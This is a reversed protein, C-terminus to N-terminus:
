VPILLMTNAPITPGSLQNAQLVEQLPVRCAKAIEWAEEEGDTRRLIVAPKRGQEKPLESIEGGCITRLSHNAWCELEAQVPLRLELRDGGSCYIEGWDLSRLSCEAGEHLETELELATHLSRGQLRSEGDYYLVNCHLPLRLRLKDGERERQMEDSCVWADVVSAAEEDCHATVTERFSQNDLKGYMEWQEWRPTLLADTCYADDVLTLRQEGVAMCQALLNASLFLRGCEIQSEPEVEFSAFSLLTQLDAGERDEGFEAYQSFPLEWNHSHLKENRDAYLCHVLMLGKFVAKSGVIKQERVQLRGVCKLLRSVQPEESSLELEENLPFSKECLALPMQIPLEMRRLQLNESPEEPACLRQQQAGYATLCCAIGVRLLLKRSNLPRADVSRLTCKCQLRCEGKEAPLEKRVSFPVTTQLCETEGEETVFIAGAQVSGAVYISGGTCEANHLLLTGFADVVREADPYSDPVIVDATQELLLTEGLNRSLFELQQEQLILEM